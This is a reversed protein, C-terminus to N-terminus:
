TCLIIIILIIYSFVMLNQVLQISRSGLKKKLKQQRQKDAQTINIPADKISTWGLIYTCHIVTFIIIRDAM